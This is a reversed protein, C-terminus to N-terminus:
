AQGVIQRLAQAFVEPPQGGQILHRDNIIVAPVSNIGANLYRAEATRVDAAFEDSALIASARAEDLGVERVAALLVEHSSPNQGETFYRRFLAEKLALQRDEQEAWHLLRHADFTNYIGARKGVAFDFGLQAGRERITEQIRALQEETSGYKRRLHARIEEGEPAMDPNLEFPQFHLSAEVEGGLESLAKKLSYLGIACWPCSVDSVFDIKLRTPMTTLRPPIQRHSSFVLDLTGSSRAAPSM